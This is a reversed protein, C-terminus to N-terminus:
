QTPGPAESKESSSKGGSIAAFNSKSSRPQADTERALRDKLKEDLSRLGSKGIRPALIKSSACTRVNERAKQQRWERLTTEDYRWMGGIKFTPIVGRAALTRATKAAIGLFEAVEKATWSADTITM